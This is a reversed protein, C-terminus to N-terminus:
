RGHIDRLAKELDKTALQGERVVELGVSLDIITSPVRKALTGADLALEAGEIQGVAEKVTVPPDRGSINASTTIMPVGAKRIIELTIDHDPIRVAVKEGGATVVDPIDKKELLITLPGPLFFEAIGEAREDVVAYKKMMTMDAVAISLPKEMDRKKAKYVKKVADKDLANCGLGYLTDTPHIVLGGKIIIDAAKEIVTDPADGVKIIRTAM